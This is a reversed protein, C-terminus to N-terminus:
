KALECFNYPVLNPFLSSKALSEISEVEIAYAQDGIIGADKLGEAVGFMIDKLKRDCDIRAKANKFHALRLFIRDRIAATASKLRSANADADYKDTEMINSERLMNTIAQEDIELRGIKYASSKEHLFRYAGGTVLLAVLAWFALDRGKIM